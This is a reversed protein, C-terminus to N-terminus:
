VLPVYPVTPAVRPRVKVLLGRVGVIDMLTLVRRPITLFQLWMTGSTLSM